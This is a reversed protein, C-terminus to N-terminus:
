WALGSYFEAAASSPDRALALEYRAKAEEIRGASHLAKGYNLQAQADAPLLEVVKGYRELPPVVRGMLQAACLGGVPIILAAWRLAHATWVPFRRRERAGSVGSTDIGLMSRTQTERVKWIFGDYYFHLLASATVVGILTNRIAEISLGQGVLAIAGYAFVLGVYVGLLSGSQRFIFRMFGRISEDREVRTRNYIWVISLYQVDHFVEFLAIGVLINQVGNNCYWWFSISSALLLLKIPSAGRGARWDLWQRWAFQAVALVVLGIMANRITSIAWTPIVPGGSEYYLELCTRFRLPSLVVAATFATACLIFDARARSAASASAKADYIRCFGYTQMLGHWIGWILAVLQIAQINYISSWVCVALLAVPAVVFRTKFRSFLAPDGYARIMGPLHHGMAGFAGVFLFIDQASWRAQAAIFIPILVAPTGVFLLLDLWRGLIWPSKKAAAPISSVPAADVPSGGVAALASIKVSRSQIGHRSKAQTATSM